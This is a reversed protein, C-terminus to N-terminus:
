WQQCVSAVGPMSKAASLEHAFERALDAELEARAAWDRGVEEPDFFRKQLEVMAEFQQRGVEAFGAINLNPMNATSTTGQGKAMACRWQRLRYCLRRPVAALCLNASIFFGPQRSGSRVRWTMKQENLRRRRVDNRNM